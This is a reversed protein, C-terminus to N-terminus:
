KRRILIYKNTKFPFNVTILETFVMTTYFKITDRLASLTSVKEFVSQGFTKYGIFYAIIILNTRTKELV